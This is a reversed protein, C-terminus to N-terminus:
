RATSPRGTARRGASVADVSASPAEVATVPDRAPDHGRRLSDGHLEIPHAAHLLRDLTADALTPEGLAYHCGACGPMSRWTTASSEVRRKTSSRRM